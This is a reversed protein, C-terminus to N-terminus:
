WGGGGAVWAVTGVVTAATAVEVTGLDGVGSDPDM